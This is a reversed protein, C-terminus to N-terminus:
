WWKTGLDFANNRRDADPPPAPADFDYPAPDLVYYGAPGSLARIRERKGPELRLKRERKKRGGLFPPADYEALVTEGGKRGLNAAWLVGGEAVLAFDPLDSERPMTWVASTQGRMRGSRFWWSWADGSCPVEAEAKKVNEFRKFVKEGRYLFVRDMEREFEISLKVKEGVVVEGLHAVALPPALATDSLAVTRRARLADLLGEGPRVYVATAVRLPDDRKHFDTGGTCFLRAGRSVAWRYAAEEFRGLAALRGNYCELGDALPLLDPKQWYGEEWEAPGPGPHNITGLASHAHALEFAARWSLGHPLPVKLGVFGLHDNNGVGLTKRYNPGPELTLELGLRLVTKGKRLPMLALAGAFARMREAGRTAFDSHPSWVVVDYGKAAHLALSDEPALSGSDGVGKWPSAHSHLDCILPRPADANEAAPRVPPVALLFLVM